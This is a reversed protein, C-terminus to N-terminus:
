NEPLELGQDSSSSTDLGQEILESPSTQSFVVMVGGSRIKLPTPLSLFHPTCQEGAMTPVCIQFDLWISATSYEGNGGEDIDELSIKVHSQPSWVSVGTREMGGNVAALAGLGGPVSQSSGQIWAKGQVEGLGTIIGPVGSFLDVVEFHKCSLESCPEPTFMQNATGGSLVHDIPNEVEGAFPVDIRALVDGPLSGQGEFLSILNDLDLLSDLNESLNGLDALYQDEIGAFNNISEDSLGDIDGVTLEDTSLASLPADALEPSIELLESTTLNQVEGEGLSLETEQLLSAWDQNEAFLRDVPVNELEPYREAIRALTAEDTISLNDGFDGNAAESLSINSFRQDDALRNVLANEQNSLSRNSGAEANINSFSERLIPFNAIEENNYEPFTELFQELTLNNILDLDNLPVNEINTGDGEAIEGVSLNSISILGELEPNNTIDGVKIIEDPTAGAAWIRAINYEDQATLADISGSESAGELESLSSSSVAEPDYYVGPVIDSNTPESQNESNNEQAEVSLALSCFILNLVLLYLVKKM